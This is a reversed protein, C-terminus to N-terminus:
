TNEKTWGGKKLRGGYKEWGFPERKFVRPWLPFPKSDFDGFVEGGKGAENGPLQYLNRDTFERSDFVPSCCLRGFFLIRGRRRIAGEPDGREALGRANVEM